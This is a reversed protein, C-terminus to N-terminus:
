RRRRETGTEDTGEPIAMTHNGLLLCRGSVEVYTRMFNYRTPTPGRDVVTFGTVIAASGLVRAVVESQVRSRTDGAGPARNSTRELLSERSDVSSAHNHVWVFDKALLTALFDADSDLLAKEWKADLQILAAPDLCAAQATLPNAVAAVLAAALGFVRM